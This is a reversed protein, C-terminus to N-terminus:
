IDSAILKDFRLSAITARGKGGRTPVPGPSMSNPMRTRPYTNDVMQPSNTLGHQGHQAYMARSPEASMNSSQHSPPPPPLMGSAALAAFTDPDLPSSFVNNWGNDHFAPVSNHPIASSGPPPNRPIPNNLMAPLSHALESQLSSYNSLSQNFESHPTASVSSYPSWNASSAISQRRSSSEADM